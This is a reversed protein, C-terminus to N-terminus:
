CLLTKMDFCVLCFTEINSKLQADYQKQKIKKIRIRIDDVNFANHGMKALFQKLMKVARENPSSAQKEILDIDYSGIGVDVALKKWFVGVEDALEFLVPGLDVSYM